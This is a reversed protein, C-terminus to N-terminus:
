GEAGKAAALRARLADLAPNSDAELLAEAIESPSPRNRIADADAMAQAEADRIEQLTPVPREDTWTAVLEQYSGARRYKANPVLRHVIWAIDM